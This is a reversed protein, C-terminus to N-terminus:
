HDSKIDVNGFYDNDKATEPKENRIESHRQENRFTSPGSGVGVGSSIYSAIIVFLPSYIETPDSSYKINTSGYYM